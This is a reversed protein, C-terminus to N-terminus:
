GEILGFLLAGLEAGVQDLNARDLFVAVRKNVDVPARDHGVSLFARVSRDTGVHDAALSQRALLCVGDLNRGLRSAGLGDGLLHMADLALEDARLPSGLEARGDLDGDLHLVLLERELGVLQASRCGRRPISTAACPRNGAGGGIPKGANGRM